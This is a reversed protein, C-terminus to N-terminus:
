EDPRYSALTSLAIQQLPTCLSGTCGVLTEYRAELRCVNLNGHFGRLTDAWSRLQCAILNGALSDETVRCSPKSRCRDAEHSWHVLFTDMAPTQLVMSSTAQSTSIAPFRRWVYARRSRVDVVFSFPASIALEHFHASSPMFLRRWPAPEEKPSMYEFLTIASGTILLLLVAAALVLLRM